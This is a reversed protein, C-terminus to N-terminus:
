LGDRPNSSISRAPPQWHGKEPELDLSPFLNSQDITRLTTVKWTLPTNEVLRVDKTIPLPITPKKKSSLPPAGAWCHKQQFFFRSAVYNLTDEITSHSGIQIGGM